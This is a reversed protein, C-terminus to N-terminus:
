RGSCLPSVKNCACTSWLAYILAGLIGVGALGGVLGGVIKGADDDNSDGDENSAGTAATLSESSSDVTNIFYTNSQAFM